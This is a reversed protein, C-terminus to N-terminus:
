AVSDVFVSILSDTKYNEETSVAINSLFFDKKANASVVPDLVMMKILIWESQILRKSIRQNQANKRSTTHIGEFPM